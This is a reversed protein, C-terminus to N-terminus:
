AYRRKRFIFRLLEESRKKLEDFEINYKEGSAIILALNYLAFERPSAGHEDPLEDCEPFLEKIKEKYNFKTHPLTFYKNIYFFVIAVVLSLRKNGNTFFHGKNIAVILFAAKEFFDAYYNTQARDLVGILNKIGEPENQYEPLEQDYKLVEYIAPVGYVLCM